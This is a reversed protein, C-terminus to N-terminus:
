TRQVRLQQHITWAAFIGAVFCGGATAFRAGTTMEDRRGTHALAGAGQLRCLRKTGGSQQVLCLTIRVRQLLELGHIAENQVPFAPSLDLSLHRWRHPPPREHGRTIAGTGSVLSYPASDTGVLTSTSVCSSLRVARASM